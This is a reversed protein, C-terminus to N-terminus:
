PLTVSYLDYMGHYEEALVLTLVDGEISAIGFIQNTGLQDSLDLLTRVAGSAPDYSCISQATNFLIHDGWVALSAFASRLYYSGQTRWRVDEFTEVVRMDEPTGSILSTGYEEDFYIGYYVGDLMVMATRMKRWLVNDYTTDTARYDARYQALRGVARLGEDSLMFYKYSSYSPYVPDTEGGADDWTVDVHYWNGNVQIINWAHDMEESLVPYSAIGRASCLLTMAQMYAQCVGQGETFFRYADRIRENEPLDRYDYSYHQVLYDHFYRVEDLQTGHPSGDVIQQVIQELEATKERATEADYLYTFRVTEVRSSGEKCAISYTNNVYFYLPNSLLFRDVEYGFEEVDLRLHSVDLTEVHADFATSFLTNVDYIKNPDHEDDDELKGGLMDNLAGGLVNEDFDRISEIVDQLEAPANLLLKVSSFIGSVTGSVLLLVVCLLMIVGHVILSPLDKKTFKIKERKKKEKKGKPAKEKKAKAPKEKKDKKPKEETVREVTEETVEEAAEVTVEEAAEVTVAETVEEVDPTLNKEEKDAM